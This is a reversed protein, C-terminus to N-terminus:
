KLEIKVDLYNSLSEPIPGNVPYKRAFAIADHAGVKFYQDHASEM